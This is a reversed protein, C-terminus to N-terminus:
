NITAKARIERVARDAGTIVVSDTKIVGSINKIPRNRSNYLRGGRLIYSSAGSSLLAMRGRSDQVIGRLVLSAIQPPRDIIQDNRSDGTLPIFPDRYRDGYFQYNLYFPKPASPRPTVTKPASVGVTWGSGSVSLILFALLLPRNNM